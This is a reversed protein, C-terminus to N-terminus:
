SNWYLGLRAPISSTYNQWEFSLLSEMGQQSYITLEAEVLVVMVLDELLLIHSM